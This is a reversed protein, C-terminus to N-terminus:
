DFLADFRCMKLFIEVRRILSFCFLCLDFVFVFILCFCYMFVFLCFCCLIIGVVFIFCFLFLVFAFLCAYIGSLVLSDFYLPGGSRFIFCAM